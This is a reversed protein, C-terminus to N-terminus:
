THHNWRSPNFHSRAVNSSQRNREWDITNKIFLKIAYMKLQVLCAMQIKIVRLYHELQRRVRISM